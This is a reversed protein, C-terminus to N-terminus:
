QGRILLHDRSLIRHHAYPLNSPLTAAVVRESLMRVTDESVVPLEFHKIIDTDTIFSSDTAGVLLQGTNISVLWCDGAGRWM